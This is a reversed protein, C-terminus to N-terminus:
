GGSGGKPPKPKNNALFDKWTSFRPGWSTPSVLYEPSRTKIATLLDGPIQEPGNLKQVTCRYFLKGPRQGMLMWPHWSAIRVWAGTYSVKVLQDDFLENTKACSQLFEGINIREGSSERVWIKPDLVHKMSLRTDQWVSTTDGITQWPLVFATPDVASRVNTAEIRMDGTSWAALDAKSPRTSLVSNAAPNRIHRVKVDEDIFPNHWHDLIQLTQPDRFFGIEKWALHYTGDPQREVWGQGMGTLNFVLKAPEDDMEVFVSGGFYSYIPEKILSYNMKVFYHLNDAPNGPDFNARRETPSAQAGHPLTAALGGVFAAGALMPGGSLADRRTLNNQLARDIPM